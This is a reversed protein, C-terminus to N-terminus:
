RASETSLKIIIFVFLCFLVFSFSFFFFGFLDAANKPRTFYSDLQSSWGVNTKFLEEIKEKISFYMLWARPVKKNGKMKWRSAGCRQCSEEEGEYLYDYCRDCYHYIKPQLMRKTNKSSPSSFSSSSSSSSSSFFVMRVFRDMLQMYAYVSSPILHDPNLANLLQLM